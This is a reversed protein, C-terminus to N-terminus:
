KEVTAVDDIRGLSRSADMIQACSLCTVGSSQCPRAGCVTCCGDQFFRNRSKSFPRDENLAHLLRTRCTAHVVAGKAPRRDCVPCTRKEEFDAALLIDVVATEPTVRRSQHPHPFKWTDPHRANRVRVDAAVLEVELPARMFMTSKGTTSTATPYALGPMEGLAAKIRHQSILRDRFCDACEVGGPRCPTTLCNKCRGPRYAAYGAESTPIAEVFPGFWDAVNSYDLGAIGFGANVLAGSLPGVWESSVEWRKAKPVWRRMAGPVTSKLISVAEFDYAFGVRYRGDHETFTVVVVSAEVVDEVVFPEDLIGESM